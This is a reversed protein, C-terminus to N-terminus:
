QRPALRRALNEVLLENFTREDELQPIHGIGPMTVLTADPLLSALHQGQPLPTVTDGEGWIILTPMRLERYLAAQRSAPREDSLVFQELWRGFAETTGNVRQPRQYTEIRQSTIAEHRVTFARLFTGTLLPNTALSAVMANRLPGTALVVRTVFSVDDGGPPEQLGLAACVLVLARVRRPQSMAAEVTARAGFSHGILVVSDIKLADLVGIIRKAQAPTSYDSTVPRFSYGFPPLDIAIVRYGAQALADITSRWTESWAGLGHILMVPVGTAPGALQVYIGVDAATIFQGSAPAADVRSENERAQSALRFGILATVIALALAAAGAILRFLIRRAM